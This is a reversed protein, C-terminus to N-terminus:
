SGGGPGNERNGGKGHVSVIARRRPTGAAPTLLWGELPIGDARSLFRVSEYRLGYVEPTRALPVRDARTLEVAMYGCLAVYVTMVVVAVLVVGGVAVRFARHRRAEQAAAGSGGGGGVPTLLRRPTASGTM